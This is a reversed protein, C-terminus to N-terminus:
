GNISLSNLARDACTFVALGQKEADIRYGDFLHGAAVCFVIPKGLRQSIDALDIPLYLGEGKFDRTQMAATLPVPSVLAADYEGSQLALEVMRVFVVDPAMPTVDIPNKVDVIADLKNKVLIDQLKKALGQSPAPVAFRSDKTIVDAMGAAEFGANTIVFLKPNEPFNKYSTLLKVSDEYDDFNELVIAGAAELVTKTIFYDGAISATHGMVAKKGQASRGAKYVVVKKGNAKARAISHAFRLGDGPKFGEMYTFIVDTSEKDALYDVYDPVTIDMQNGLTVCYDPKFNEFKSLVAIVFAGSQSIFASNVKSPNKGIPPVLNKEPIFLTNVKAVNSVLGLCNGGNLAFDPNIKKGEAIISEIHAKTGESGEKEGMGGSILVVTNVKASQAADTLVDAVGSSPVSVVFMDAKKPFDHCSKYCKVGDIEGDFDKLIYTDGKFGAKIINQLIIRGMNMKNESVGAVAVTKPELVSEIAKDTPIQRQTVSNAKFRMLGDLAVFEGGGFVLPNVELEEVMWPSDYFSEVLEKIGKIWAVLESADALKKMGRVKGSLYGWIWANNVFNIIHIDEKILSLPIIAPSKGEKLAASVEEADTGGKGLTLIHGFAEDYKVGLMLEHGLTGAKHEVFEFITVGKEKPFKAFMEAVTEAAESKNVVKVAGADTKHLIEPSAIKVVVRSGPFQEIIKKVDEAKQVLKRKPTRLKFLDFLYYVETETLAKYGKSDVNTLLKVATDIM